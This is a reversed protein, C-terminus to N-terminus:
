TTVVVADVLVDVLADAVQDATDPTLSLVVAAGIYLNVLTLGTDLDRTTDATVVYGGPLDIRTPRM